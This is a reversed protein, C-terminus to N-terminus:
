RARVAGLQAELFRVQRRHTKAKGVESLGPAPSGRRRQSRLARAEREERKRYESLQQKRKMRRAYAVAPTPKFGIGNVGTGDDESDNPDYVTIEDEHWTLSARLPDVVQDQAASASTSTLPPTGTRKRSATMEAMHSLASPRSHLNQPNPEEIQTDQQDDTTSPLDTSDAMREEAGHSQSPRYLNHGEPVPFPQAFTIKASQGAGLAGQKQHADDRHRMESSTSTTNTDIQMADYNHQDRIMVGGGGELTLSSFHDTVQMWQRSGNRTNDRESQAWPHDSSKSPSNSLAYSHIGRCSPDLSYNTLSSAM